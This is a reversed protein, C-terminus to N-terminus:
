APEREFLAVQWMGATREFIRHFGQRALTSDILGPPHAFMRFSDRRIHLVLNLIAVGLRNWWVERPFVMGYLSRAKQASAAILAPADDYCCVVRDLTVIDAEPVSAALDVFNGHHFSIRSELGLREAEARATRLYAASADVDTARTIGAAMLERLIVGIGSGIDLLTKGAVGRERLAEILLRTSRPHGRRRSRNMQQAALEEDFVSEIGQCQCQSMSGFTDGRPGPPL